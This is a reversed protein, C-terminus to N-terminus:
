RLDLSTLEECLTLAVAEGLQFFGPQNIGAGAVQMNVDPSQLPNSLHPCLTGTLPSTPSCPLVPLKEQTSFSISAALKVAATKAWLVNACHLSCANSERATSLKTLFQLIM